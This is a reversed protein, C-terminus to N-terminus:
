GMGAPVFAPRRGGVVRANGGADDLVVITDFGAVEFLAAVAARQRYGHEVLLMGDAALFAPASAVIHRLDDLGDHGSVLAALPEHSLDALHPDDAAIYPPNAVIVDYRGSPVGTFWDAPVCSVNVAGLQQVNARAVELAAASRDTAVLRCRPRELAISIAVCGSGTGLDLIHAPRDDGVCELAANVLVATDDRPVLVAPTVQFRRGMFYAEGLVHALPTGDVLRAVAVDFAQLEFADVSEAERLTREVARM